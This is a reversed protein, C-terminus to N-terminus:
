MDSTKHHEAKKGIIINKAIRLTTASHSSIYKESSFSNFMAIRYPNQPSQM